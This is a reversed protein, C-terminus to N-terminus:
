FEVKTGVGLEKADTDTVIAHVGSPVGPLLAVKRAVALLAEESAGTILFVYNDEWEEGDDYLEVDGTDDLDAIFEM